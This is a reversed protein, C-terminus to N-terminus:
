SLVAQWNDYNQYKLWRFLLVATCCKFSQSIAIRGSCVTWPLKAVFLQFRRTAMKFSVVLLYFLPTHFSTLFVASRMRSKSIELLSVPFQASGRPKGPVCGVHRNKSPIPLFILNKLSIRSCDNKTQLKYKFIIYRKTNRELAGLLNLSSM